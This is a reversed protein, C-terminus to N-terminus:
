LRWRLGATWEAVSGEFGSGIGRVRLEAQLTLPANPPAIRLGTSLSATTTVDNQGAGNAFAAGGGFGLYPRVVRLPLQFQLQGEPIVLTQHGGADMPPRLVGVALETMFWSRPVADWRVSAMSTTGTGSLDYQAAGAMVAVGQSGVSEAQAHARRASFFLSAIALSAALPYSLRSRASM